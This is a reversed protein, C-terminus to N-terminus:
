VYLSHNQSEFKMGPLRPFFGNQSHASVSCANSWTALFLIETEAEVLYTVGAFRKGQTKM